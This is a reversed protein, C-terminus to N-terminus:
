GSRAGARRGRAYARSRKALPGAEQELRRVMEYHIGQTGETGRRAAGVLYGLRVAEEGEPREVAVEALGSATQLFAAGVEQVESSEADESLCQSIRAGDIRVEGPAKALAGPLTEGADRCAVPISDDATSCGGVLLVFLPILRKVVAYYLPYAPTRPPIAPYKPDVRRGIRQM